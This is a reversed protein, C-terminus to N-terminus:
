APRRCCPSCTRLPKSGDAIAKFQSAYKGNPNYAVVMSTGAYQIYWSTFKPQLPTINDGGM